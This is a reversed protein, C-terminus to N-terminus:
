HNLQNFLYEEQLKCEVKFAARCSKVNEIYWEIQEPTCKYKDRLRTRIEAEEDAEM